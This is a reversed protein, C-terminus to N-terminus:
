ADPSQVQFPMTASRRRRRRRADLSRRVRKLLRGSTFPKQLLDVDPDLVGYSAISTDPYGSMFLVATDPRENTLAAALAPGNMNEMVVDTLLMHIPAEYRRSAELAAAGSEAVLVKYGHQMLITEVYGRLAREDEVVLITETGQGAADSEPSEEISMAIARGISPLYIRFETGEGPASQVAIHGGSQKVVGYVTSLGLGTGKGKPKTTFFPEFARRQVEASMGSGTDRVFLVVHPGAELGPLREATEADIDVNEVGITIEGGDAMADRANVVLNMIVQNMQGPDAEVLDADPAIQVRSRITEGIVRRLMGEVELVVEGLSLPRPEIVQRRSFALLQGVLGMARESARLVEDLWKQADTDAANARAMSGYGQIVSLMNNFDHAVGGALMGIAEMKQAQRLQDELATENSVDHQVVVFEVFQGSADRVSSLTVEVPFSGGDRRRCEARGTWPCGNRVSPWITELPLDDAIRVWLDDLKRATTAERQCGTQKEFAPNAYTVRMEGDLILVADVAHEVAASLRTREEEAHRRRYYTAIQEAAFALLAVDASLFPRAADFSQAVLVAHMSGGLRIPASAWHEAVPEAAKVEGREVLMRIQAASMIVTAEASIVYGTLGKTVEHASVEPQRPDAFHPISIRELAEDVIAVHFADIQLASRLVSEVGRLLENPTEADQALESLRYTAVRRRDNRRTEAMDSAVFVYIGHGGEATGPTAVRSASVRVERISGDALALRSEHGRFQDREDLRACMGSSGGADRLVVDFPQGVLQERAYGLLEVAARNLNVVRLHVVDDRVAVIVAEPMSEIIRVVYARASRAEDQAARLSAVMDDFSGVLAGFEALRGGGAVGLGREGKAVRDAAQALDRTIRAVHRALLSATLLAAAVLSLTTYGFPVSSLAYGMCALVAALVSLVGVHIIVARTAFRLLLSRAHRREDADGAGAAPAAEPRHTPPAAADFTSEPPAAVSDPAAAPLEQTSTSSGM